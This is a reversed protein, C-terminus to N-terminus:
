QLTSTSTAINDALPQTEVVNGTWLRITQRMPVGIAAYAVSVRAWGKVAAIAKKLENGAKNLQIAAQNFAGILPLLDSGGDAVLAAGGENM